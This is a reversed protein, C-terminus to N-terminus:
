IGGRVKCRMLRETLQTFGCVDAVMVAGQFSTMRPVLAPAATVNGAAEAGDAPVTPPSAPGGAAAPLGSAEVPLAESSGTGAQLTKVPQLPSAAAGGDASSAVRVLEELLLRPLLPLFHQLTRLPPAAASGDCAADRATASLEALSQFPQPEGNANASVEFTADRAAAGLAARSQFAVDAADASGDVAADRVGSRSLPAAASLLLAHATKWQESSEEPASLMSHCSPAPLPPPAQQGAIAAGSRTAASAASGLEQQVGAAMVGGRAASGGASVVSCRDMSVDIPSGLPLSSITPPLDNVTNNTLPALPPASPAGGSTRQGGAPTSAERGKSGQQPMGKQTKNRLLPRLLRLTGSEKRPKGQSEM